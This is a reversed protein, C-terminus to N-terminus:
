ISICTMQPQTPPGRTLFEGKPGDHLFRLSYLFNIYLLNKTSRYKEISIFSLNYNKILEFIKCKAIRVNKPKNMQPNQVNVTKYM